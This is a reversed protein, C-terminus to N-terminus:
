LGGRLYVVGAPVPFQVHLNHVDSWRQAGVKALRRVRPCAEARDKAVCRAALLDGVAKGSADPSKTPQDENRGAGRERGGGDWHRFTPCTPTGHQRRGTTKCEPTRRDAKKNFCKIGM